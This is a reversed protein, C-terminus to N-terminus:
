NCLKDTFTPVFRKLKTLRHNSLNQWIVVFFLVIVKWRSKAFHVCGFGPLCRETEVLHRSGIPNAVACHLHRSALWVLIHWIWNCICADYAGRVKMEVDGCALLCMFNTDSRCPWALQNRRINMYWRHSKGDASWAVGGSLMLLALPTYINMYWRHSKGDASWAVGGSLM